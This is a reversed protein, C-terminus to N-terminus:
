EEPLSNWLNTCDTFAKRIFKQPGVGAGTQTPRGERRSQGIVIVGPDSPSIYGETIISRIFEGLWHLIGTEEEYVPERVPPNFGKVKAM